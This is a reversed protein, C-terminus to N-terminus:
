ATAGHALVSEARRGGRPAFLAHARMAILFAAGLVMAGGLVHFTTPLVAKGTWVTLAGLFIQAAILAALLIAPCVLLPEGRHSRLIRRVLWAGLIAVILAWVRHAFHIQIAPTSLPPLIQGFALPFDPIALGAKTHRMVAGLILQGYIAAATASSLWRLPVAAREERSARLDRWGSGTMLALAVTMCLFAQALCAHSISVAPPLKMLVTLGGLLGQLVVAGLAVGSLLRVSGPARALWAWVYLGITLLGVSAAVMRHGHEYFVGGKMEPFLQGFSLPWDPVALGSETSTVMGGAFILFFTAACVLVAYRHLWARPASRERLARPAGAPAIVGVRAQERRESM